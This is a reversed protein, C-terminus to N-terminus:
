KGHPKGHTDNIWLERYSSMTAIETIDRIMDTAEIIM